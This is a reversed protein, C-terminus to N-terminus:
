AAQWDGGYTGIGYVYLNTSDSGYDSENVTLQYIHSGYSFAGSAAWNVFTYWRSQSSLTISGDNLWGDITSWSYTQNSFYLNTLGRHSYTPDYIYESSIVQTCNANTLDTASYTVRTTAFYTNFCSPTLLAQYSAYLTQAADYSAVSQIPIYLGVNAIIDDTAYNFDYTIYSTYVNSMSVGLCMAVASSVAQMDNSNMYTTAVDYLVVTPEYYFSTDADSTPSIVNSLGTINANYHIEGITGSKDVNFSIDATM